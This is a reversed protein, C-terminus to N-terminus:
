LPCIFDKGEQASLYQVFITTDRKLLHQQTLSLSGHIPVQNLSLPMISIYMKINSLSHSLARHKMSEQLSLLLEGKRRTSTTHLAIHKEREANTYERLLFASGELMAQWVMSEEQNPWGIIGIRTIEDKDNFQYQWEYDPSVVFTDHPFYAGKQKDKLQWQHLEM